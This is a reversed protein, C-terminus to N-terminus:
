AVGLNLEKALVDVTIAVRFPLPAEGLQESGDALYSSDAANAEGGAVGPVEGAVYDVCDVGRGGEAIVHVQWDLRARSPDELHHRPLVGRLPIQLPNGPDLCCPPWDRDGGINNDPKGAFGWVIKNLGHVEEGFHLVIANETELVRRSGIRGRKGHDVRDRFALFGLPKLYQKVPLALNLPDIVRLM